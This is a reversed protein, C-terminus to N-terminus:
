SATLYSGSVIAIWSTTLDAAVSTDDYYSYTIKNASANIYAKTRKVLNDAFTFAGWQSTGAITSFPLGNLTIGGTPSSLASISVIGHIHVVRGIKTYSLTNQSSNLAITGSGNAVLTATFTGEEYDDLTNADSCPVQTAPFAVGKSLQIDGANATTTIKGILVSGGAPQLAISYMTALNGSDAAQIWPTGDLNSGVDLVGSNYVDSFRAIATTTTGSTPAAGAGSAKVELRAAPATTNIGLKGSTDIRMRELGGSTGAQTFITPINSTSYASGIYVAGNEASILARTGNAGSSQIGIIPSTDYLHLKYGATAALGIGINGNSAIRLRETPVGSITTFLRMYSNQTSATSNWSSEGDCVIRGMETLTAIDSLNSQFSIGAGYGGQYSQIIQQYTGIGATPDYVHLRRQAAGFSSVNIGINGNAEVRIRESSSTWFTLPKYAGTSGFTAAIQWADAATNYGLGLQSDNAARFINLGYSYNTETTLKVGFKENGPTKGLGLRGSSDLRMGEVANTNFILAGLEDNSLTLDSSSASGFGFYGRRTGGSNFLRQYIAANASLAKLDLAANDSQLSLSGLASSWSVATGNTVLPKGANGPQSPVVYGAAATASAAAATASNAANTANTGTTTVANNMATTNGFIALASAASSAADGAKTTAIGAQTTAIGAQTTATSASATASARDSGTQVRDAATQVADADAAARDIGTQTRDLGTQTRDLGTQTRDSGTQTRDLGTQTRDAHTLVVDAHTLVVDADALVRDASAASASSAASAASLAAASQSAAASSDYDQWATGTYIRFKDSATNQYMVGDVIAISHAGAFSVAAADSAFDGLFVSQFAALLAATTSASSSASSASGAAALASGAAASASATTSTRDLGTQVRDAATAVRDLGTQVRDEGTQTRDSGTQLSDLGTQVRDAATATADSDAQVRDAHAATASASAEAAAQQAALKALTAADVTTPPGLDIIQWLNCASNPVTATGLSTIGGLPDNVLVRYTTGAGGKSNPWLQAVAMGTSDTTYGVERPVVVGNETDPESLLFRITGGAIPTGDPRLARCTVPVTTITTM